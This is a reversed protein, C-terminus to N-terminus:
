VPGKNKQRLVFTLTGCDYIKNYGLERAKEYETCDIAGIFKKQFKMRNFRQVCNKNVYYYSPKNTSVLEFNNKLYLDGMSYRRDAYSVISGPYHSIFYNLLKSFGGVVNHNLKTCFRTLEWEYNKSFRSKNFTMISVLENDYVLGLKIRSKDEGQLHNDRLFNNKTSAGVEVINCKRAYITTNLKLKNAIFSKVISQKNNWEDSYFQLLQIGQQECLVTKNLHYAPGKILSEKEEWPKYYHSYLGNYEIALNFEPIYIDLEKGNLISRVSTQVVGSYVSKIYYVLSQEEKSVKNITREYSNSPRAEIGHISFWRSVTSKTTSVSEAIEQCTLGQTYLEELKDKSKLITNAQNNRRRADVLDNLKHHELWTVVPQTSVNLSFAIDEISKQLEIRENYLWEYSSLRGLAESDIKPAKKHCSESCYTRFVTKNDTVNLAVPKGCYCKPIDDDLIDNKICYARTRLPVKSYHKDLFETEKIIANKHEKNLALRMFNEKDWNNLVLEKINM